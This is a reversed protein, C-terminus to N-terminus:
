DTNLLTYQTTLDNSQFISSNVVEIVFTLNTPVNQLNLLFM